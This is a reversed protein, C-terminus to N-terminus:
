KRSSKKSKEEELFIECLGWMVIIASLLWGLMSWASLLAMGNTTSISFPFFKFIYAIGIIIGVALIIIGKFLKKIDKKM